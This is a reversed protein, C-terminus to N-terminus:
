VIQLKLDSIRQELQKAKASKGKGSKQLNKLQTQLKKIERRVESNDRGPAKSGTDGGTTAGDGFIIEVLNKSSADGVTRINFVVDNEFTQGSLKALKTIISDFGDALRSLPGNLQGIAATTDNFVPPLSSAGENFQKVLELAQALPDLGGNAAKEAEKLGDQIGVIDSSTEGFRFGLESLRALIGVISESGAKELEDFTNLGSEDLAQFFKDVEERGFSKELEARLDALDPKPAVSYFDELSKKALELAKKAADTAEPGIANNFADRAAALNDQLQKREAERLASGEKNFKERFEAFIDQFADVSFQGGKTGADILNQFADTVAGVSNPIGPGLLEKTKKIQDNLESISLRGQLFGKVLIDINKELSMGVQRSVVALNNSDKILPIIGKLDLTKAAEASEKAKKSLDDLKWNTRELASALDALRQKNAKAGKNLEAQYAAEIDFQRVLTQFIEKRLEAVEKGAAIGELEKNNIRGLIDAYKQSALLLNYAEEKLRKLDEARKEEPTQKKAGGGGSRGGPTFNGPPTNNATPDTPPTAIGALGNQIRRINELLTILQANSANVLDTVSAIGSARMAEFLRAIQDANFGLTGGIQNAVSQLNQGLDNAEAGIDRLSDILYRSGMNNNLAVQFNGLAEEVAGFAGPIGVEFIQQLQALANYAQEISLQSNLFSEIIADGLTEFTEGTQQVLVQLNQLSGGINNALATGILISQAEAQGLLSGFAVGIGTFSAQVDSSLTQFYTSFGQAGYAAQGNFRTFGEFVLDGITTFTPALNQIEEQIEGNAYGVATRVQGSIVVGLKGGDFLEAFYRDIEKRQQTGKLDKGIDALASGLVTGAVTGIQAGIQAGAAGGFYAGIAAGIAGGLAGVLGPVDERTFGDAGAAFADSLFNQFAGAIQAESEATFSEGLDFGFFGGGQKKGDAGVQEGYIADRINVVSSQVQKLQENYKNAEDTLAVSNLLRKPDTGNAILQQFGKAEKALASIDGGRDQLEAGLEILKNKFDDSGIEGNRFLDSLQAQIDDPIATGTTRNISKVYEEFERAQKKVESEIKDGAKKANRALEDFAKKGEGGARKFVKDLQKVQEETLGAEKGVAKLKGVIEAQSQAYQKDSIVGQKKDANLRTLQASLDNVQGIQAAVGLSEKIAGFEKDFNVKGDKAQLIKLTLAQYSEAAKQVAEPAIGPVEIKGAGELAQTQLNTFFNNFANQGAVIETLDVRVKIPNGAEDRTEIISQKLQDIQQKNKVYEQTNEEIRANLEPGYAKRQEETYGALEEADRKIADALSRNASELSEIQKEPAQRLFIDLGEVLGTKLDSGVSRFINGLDKWYSGLLGVQRGWLEQRQIIENTIKIQEQYSESLQRSENFGRLFAANANEQAVGLKQLSIGASDLPNPLEDAREKIKKLAEAYFAAKKEADTLQESTKGLVAAYNKQAEEASVIIGLNDLYLRSQRGLGLSLSELGLSADIGMARGLKVAAAAAENFTATPVGLLVAQNARQYLDTDSILGQTAKRLENLSETPLNGISRQLTEFGTRLGELRSAESATNDIAAEVRQFGEVVANVTGIVASLAEKVVYITAAAKSAFSSVKEFAGAIGSAAKGGGLDPTPAGDTPTKKNFLTTQQKLRTQELIRANNAAAVEAQTRAKVEQTYKENAQRSLESVQRISETQIKVTNQAASIAERSEARIQAIRISTADAQASRVKRIEEIQVKANDQNIKAAAKAAEAETKLQQIRVATAAKIEAIQVQNVQKSLEALQKFKDASKDLVSEVSKKLEEAGAIADKTDLTVKIKIDSNNDFAM